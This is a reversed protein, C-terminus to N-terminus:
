IPTAAIKRYVRSYGDVMQKTSFSKEILVRCNQRMKQYEKEPMSYIREIAECLGEIGTKKIIWNGRIDTESSNIIFGTEGDKIIEPVSGRAYAVVPTGCAMSEILVLGFPEEWQIPFLFIKSSQYHNVLEFRDKDFEIFIDEPSISHRFNIIEKNLWEIYEKKKLPFLKTKKKTKKLVELITELGKDPVGRGAWMITEGGYPNFKFRETEIGHYITGSYNLDPFFKRQANSISIFSVNNLKKFLSFYKNIYETDQTYHLTILIPKKIFPAFPLAIDGDGINIHYLDFNDQMLFAKSLLALEFIIHKDKQIISKDSTSSHYDISEIKVPLDSDGSAFATIALNKDTKVLNNILIYDFIETGKKALKTLSTFNSCIIAIKMYYNHNKFARSVM